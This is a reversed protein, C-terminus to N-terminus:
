TTQSTDLALPCFTPVTLNVNLSELPVTSSLETLVV